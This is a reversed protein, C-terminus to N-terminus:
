LGLTYAADPELIDPPRGRPCRSPDSTLRLTAPALGRRAQVARGRASLPLRVRTTEGIDPLRFNVKGLSGDRDGLRILACDAAEEYYQGVELILSGPGRGVVTVPSAGLIVRECDPPVYDSAQPDDVRDRGRGCRVRDTTHVSDSTFSITDGGDGGDVSDYGSEARLTDNGTAGYARDDGSGGDLEDAGGRGRLVDDGRGGDISNRGGDGRLLDDSRGGRVNEVDTLEDGEGAAGDPAPDALDVAVPVSHTSWSVTDKGAGGDITDSAPVSDDGRLADADPGGVLRDRGDGGLLETPGTGAVLVDDGPGGALHAAGSIVDDGPGGHIAGNSTASDDGDGLEIRQGASYGPRAIPCRAAHSDIRECGPGPTVEAGSDRFVFADQASAGTVVNAEGPAAAYTATTFTEAGGRTQLDYTRASATGAAAQTPLALLCAACTLPVM